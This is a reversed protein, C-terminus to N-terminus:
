VWCFFTGYVCVTCHHWLITDLLNLALLLVAVLKMM